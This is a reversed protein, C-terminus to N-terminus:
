PGREALLRAIALGALEDSAEASPAVSLFHLGAGAEFGSPTLFIIGTTLGPQWLLDRVRRVGHSFARRPPNEKPPTQVITFNRRDSGPFLRNMLTMPISVGGWRGNCELWQIDPNEPNDGFLVADFSCRGFFGLDQFVQGLMLGRHCFEAIWPDSSDAPHAGVFRGEPGAVVQHFVGEIVPPVATQQPIWLQLSPSTFVNNQWVQVIVPFETPRAAAGLRDVLYAHLAKISMGSLDSSFVPFNGASGASQPLKVVLKRCDRAIKHVAGALAAPGHALIEKPAAAPGLLARALRTFFVKNNAAETVAPFSGAVSIRAGTDAGLRRALRWVAGTASYPVLTARGAQEVFARLHQYSAPDKMCRLYSPEHLDRPAQAVQLYHRHGLGLRNEVYHEFEGNRRGGIVVLDGEGALLAFRYELLRRSEDDIMSMESSDGFFVFPGNGAAPRAFPGFFHEDKSLDLGSRLSDAVTGCHARENKTLRAFFRAVVPMRTQWGHRPPDEAPTHKPM